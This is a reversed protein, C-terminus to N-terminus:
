KRPKRTTVPVEITCKSMTPTHFVTHYFCIDGEWLKDHVIAVERPIPKHLTLAASGIKEILYDDIFPELRSGIDITQKSM